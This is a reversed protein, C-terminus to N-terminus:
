NQLSITPSTRRRASGWGRWITWGDAEFRALGGPAMASWAVGTAGDPVIYLAGEDPAEPQETVSRSVVACQVLADLRTLADNLTVHKQMQGAQLYPLDLRASSQSEAPIM